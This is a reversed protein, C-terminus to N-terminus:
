SNNPGILKELMARASDSNWDADGLMRAIERGEPDILVNVPLGIVDMNRALEQKPDRHFPLNTVGIEDFFAEMAPLPNRGTAITLVEFREGGYTEQLASLMPMEKRCPACWTAWFNVLLYKGRYDLLTAEDGEESIFGVAPLAQPSPHFRLKKMSGELMAQMEAPDNAVLAGDATQLPGDGDRLAIVIAAIASLGVAIYVLASRSM